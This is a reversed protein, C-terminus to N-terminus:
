AARRRVPFRRRAIVQLGQVVEPEDAVLELM